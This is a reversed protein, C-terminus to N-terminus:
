MDLYLNSDVTISPEYVNRFAFIMPEPNRKDVFLGSDVLDLYRAYKSAKEMFDWCDHTNEYPTGDPIIFPKEQSIM